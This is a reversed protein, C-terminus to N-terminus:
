ERMGEKLKFSLRDMEDEIKDIAVNLGLTSNESDRIIDKKLRDQEKRSTQNKRYTWIKTRVSNLKLIYKKHIDNMIGNYIVEMEKGNAKGFVSEFELLYQEGNDNLDMFASNYNGIITELEKFYEEKKLAMDIIDSFAIQVDKVRVIYTSMKKLIFAFQKNKAISIEKAHLKTILHKM